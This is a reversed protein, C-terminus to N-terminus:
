QVKAASLMNAFLRYAGPVGSPLERFWDYASYIYVGKGIKVYLMGGPLPDEGPDHSELVSQYRSDWRDSFYLGREQIWNNFDASTIENPKHLLTLQPNPFTVPAEEVTVRDNSLHIPYPSMHETTGTADVKDAEVPGRLPPPAPQGNNAGAGGRGGRGGGGRAGRGAGPQAQAPPTGSNPVAANPAAANPASGNPAAGRGNAGGPGGGAGGRGGGEPRNYEVIVTGGNSAYDFLRQYNARLDARTNWARVGTVIADYRSLDGHTLDESTLLTVDCGIQRLSGPVEDGAGMVYGVNKSLNKIDARVLSAEASPFLTQEPFHPYNLVETELAVTRSGLTAVARMRGTAPTAPPTLSFQLTAQEGTGSLEFHKSEPSAKWGNPVELKVDGAQKGLNSKVPVEVTRAQTDGFVLSHQTLDLAVPPVIALPRELDGYVPDTYHNEVPRILELDQGAVRVRFHAELVPTNEPNGVNRQDRVSYLNGDKPQELWYPQTYPQDDPIRLNLNYQSPENYKLVTPALSDLAPAGATGTLKVGTLTVQAPSRVLATIGVRLNGGPTVQAATAQAELTLGSVLAMTEDLEKLKDAAMPNKTNQALSAIMPRAQALAPLLAEPHAPVFSDLAGQLIRGVPAGGPIRNWTIDIGDFLDKTAKDGAVTILAAKQTGKRQASGQGQSRNTSRSMSGIEGYSYGLEPSYDGPDIELRPGEDAAQKNKDDAQQVGFPNQMLRKPQWTQVYALQEPFRAPDAAATFAEKGLIASAQHHGHGDRPTGTFCLIIVDPRFRRINWVVDGLVQDRPWKTLAEAATKSFGFDIARTFYQEAGDIRRSALLEQTRIIGLEDGQEPGILNQGGEGRTLSLYSTRVHRGRALYALVTERDDDPHAGIMMVNGLTVLRELAQRVEIEGALMRQSRVPTAFFAVLGAALVCLTLHKKGIAM